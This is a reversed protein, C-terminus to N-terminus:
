ESDTKEENMLEDTLSLIIPAVEKRKKESMLKYLPYALIVIIIGIIGIIIGPFFLKDAWVMACSMGLGLILTGIIGVTVSVITASKYVSADLRRLQDLKSEKEDPLEYKERIRKIENNQAASYSYYNTKKENM